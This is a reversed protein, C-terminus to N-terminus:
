TSSLGKDQLEKLFPASTDPYVVQVGTDIIHKDVDVKMGEKELQPKLEEMAAKYGKRNILTLVKASVRGFEYPRQVVTVAIKNNRLNDLTASVGDFCIIKVKDQKNAKTVEDVIAPGNYAYLGVFGNIKDGYKTMADVVNTHAKGAQDKKDEFPEQLMTINHGKITDVFGQYRQKANDATMNGVFAVLSGGNPFLKIAAGGAEVGAQYNNTGIYVLRKSNPADSDFTVVPIGKDVASDIVSGFAEADIPSVAIGDAGAAVQQDFTNKQGVNDTKDPPLWSGTAGAEKLGADLGKGMTDWFPDRGNTIVKIQIAGSAKRPVDFATSQVAPTLTVPMAATTKAAGTGTDPTTTADKKPDCGFLTTTLCVLTVGQLLYFRKM